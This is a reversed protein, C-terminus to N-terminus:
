KSYNMNESSMKLEIKTNISKFKWAINHTTKEKLLNMVNKLKIDIKFKM